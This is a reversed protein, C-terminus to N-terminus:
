KVMLDDMSLISSIVFSVGAPYNAIGFWLIVDCSKAMQLLLTPLTMEKPIPSPIKPPSVQM